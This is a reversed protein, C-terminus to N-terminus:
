DHDHDTGRDGVDAALFGRSEDDVHDDERQGGDDNPASEAGVGEGGSGFHRHGSRQHSGASRLSGLVPIAILCAMAALVRRRRAPPLARALVLAGLGLM